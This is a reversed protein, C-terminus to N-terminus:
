KSGVSPPAGDGSRTIKAAVSDPPLELSLTFRVRCGAGPQSEVAFSGGMEELRARMNELGNRVVSSQAPDFGRGDDEVMIALSQNEFQFRLWAERAGSHVAINHLAEKTALLLNHRVPVEVRVDPLGAPVAVRCSIDASELFETAYYQLYGILGSLSDNRPNLAWITEDIAQALERSKETMRQLKRRIEAGPVSERGAMEGIMILQTVEAGIDDHLDQAIRRRERELTQRTEIQRLRRRARARAMLWGSALMAGLLIVAALIQVSQREWFRPIVILRYDLPAEKWVGAPDGAMVHFEYNGPSLHSYYATRRQGADVWDADVGKLQYRFQVQEPARLNPSTYDFEYSQVDSKTRIIDGTMGAAPRGDVRCEEVLPQRIPDGFPLPDPNFVALARWNPFWLRGDASRAAVPQGIGSCRRTDLGEATALRWFLVPLGSELRNSKLQTPPFGFIGNESSCWLNGATDHIIARISNGPLGVQTSWLHSQGDKLYALGCGLTGIWLGGDPDAALSIIEATGGWPDAKCHDFHDGVLRFLGRRSLGAWIVGAADEAITEVETGQYGETGAVHSLQGGALRLVGASTGFWFTGRSDQLMARFILHVNKPAIVPVFREGQLLYMGDWTGVWFNTSRDEFLVGIYGNRLGENESCHTWHGQQFRFVGAGDTGVWVSGDRRVSVMRIVSERADEPLHLTRIPRTRVQDLQAGDFGIWLSGADDAYLCNVLVQSFAEGPNLSQWSAGSELYYVGAGMMGVWLRGADDEFLARIETHFTNQRWPYSTSESVASRDTIKFIRGGKGAGARFATAVWIGGDRAPTIALAPPLLKSFEGFPEWLEEKFGVVTGGSIAWLGGQKDAVMQSVGNSPLGNTRTFIEWRGERLRAAGTEREGIWLTGEADEVLSDINTWSTPLPPGEVFGGAQRRALTGGHTGVWLGGARDLCLSSIRNDGLQPTNNTTLTVFRVGDFRALGQDTGIWLYGDSTRAIARVPASPLQDDSTWSHLLFDQLSVQNSAHAQLLGGLGM